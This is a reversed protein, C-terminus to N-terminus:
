CAAFGCPPDFFVLRFLRAPPSTVECGYGSVGQLSSVIRWDGAAMDISALGTIFSTDHICGAYLFGWPFRSGVCLFVFFFLRTSKSDGEYLVLISWLGMLCWWAGVLDVCFVGISSQLICFIESSFSM